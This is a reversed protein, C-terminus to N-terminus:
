GGPQANKPRAAPNKKGPIVALLHCARWGQIWQAASESHEPYPCKDDRAAREGLCAARSREGRAWGCDWSYHDAPHSSYPNEDRAIGAFFSDFGARYLNRNVVEDSTSM